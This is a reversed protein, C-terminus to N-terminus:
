YAKITIIEIQPTCFLRAPISSTGIGRTIFIPDDRHKVLLGDSSFQM